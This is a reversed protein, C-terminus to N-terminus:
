YRNQQAIGNPGIYQSNGFGLILMFIPNFFVLGLAFAAGHGFSAALKFEEMVTLVIIAIVIVCLIAVAVGEGKSVYNVISSIIGLALIVLYYKADWSIRFQIYSNYFPIISKWGAEGAKAFIRWYAIVQLVYWVVGVFAFVAFMGAVMGVYGMTALQEESSTLGSTETLFASLFALM